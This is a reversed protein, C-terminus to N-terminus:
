PFNGWTSYRHGNLGHVFIVSQTTEPASAHKHLILPEDSHVSGNKVPEFADQRLRHVVQGTWRRRMTSSEADDARVQSIKSSCPTNGSDLGSSSHFKVGPGGRM